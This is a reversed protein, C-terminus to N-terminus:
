KTSSAQRAKGVASQEAKKVKRGTSVASKETNLVQLKADFGSQERM